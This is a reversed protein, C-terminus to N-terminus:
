PKERQIVEKVNHTILTYIIHTFPLFTVGFFDKLCFTERSGRLFAKSALCECFHCGPMVRWSGIMHEECAM